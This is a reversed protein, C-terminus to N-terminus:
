TGWKDLPPAFRRYVAEEQAAFRAKKERNWREIFAELDKPVLANYLDQVDAHVAHVPCYRGNAGVPRYCRRPPIM